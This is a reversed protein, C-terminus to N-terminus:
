MKIDIITNSLYKMEPYLIMMSGFLREQKIKIESISNEKGADKTGEEM